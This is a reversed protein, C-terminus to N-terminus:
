SADEERALLSRFIHESLGIGGAGALERAYADSLFGSFAEEGPGGNAAGPPKAVGAHKLMEALFSAELETAAGQLAQLRAPTINAAPDSNGASAPGSTTLITAIPDM